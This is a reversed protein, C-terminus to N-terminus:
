VFFADGKLMGWTSFFVGLGLGPRGALFCRWQCLEYSIFVVADRQMWRSSLFAYSCNALPQEHSRYRNFGPFSFNTIRFSVLWGILLIAFLVSATSPYEPPSCRSMILICLFGFLRLSTISLIFFGYCRVIAKFHMLYSGLNFYTAFFIVCEYIGRIIAIYPLSFCTSFGLGINVWRSQSAKSINECCIAM